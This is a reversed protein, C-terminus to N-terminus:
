SGGGSDAGTEEVIKEKGAEGMVNQGENNGLKDKGGETQGSADKAASDQVANTLDDSM